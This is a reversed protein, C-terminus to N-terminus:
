FIQSYLNNVREKLSKILLYLLFENM